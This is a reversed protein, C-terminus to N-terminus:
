KKKGAHQIKRRGRKAGPLASAGKRRTAKVQGAHSKKRKSARDETEEVREEVGRKIEKGKRKSRKGWLAARNGAYDEKKQLLKKLIKRGRKAIRSRFTGV